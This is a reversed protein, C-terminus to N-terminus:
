GDVQVPHGAVDLGGLGTARSRRFTGHGLGLVGAEPGHDDRGGRVQEYSDGLGDGRQERARRRHQGLCGVRDGVGEILHQQVDADTAAGSRGVLPVGEAVPLGAVGPRQQCGDPDEDDAPQEGDGIANLGQAARLRDGVHRDAHGHQQTDAARSPRDHRV